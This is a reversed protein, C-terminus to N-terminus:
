GEQTLAQLLRQVPAYGPVVSKGNMDYVAPTGQVGLWQGLNYHNSVQNNCQTPQLRAGQMMSNMAMNPNGSCAVASMQQYSDSPQGSRPDNLGSRPYLAYHVTIGAANYTSMENHMKQCFGCSTDFFVLIEYKENPAKYTVFSSKLKNIVGAGVEATKKQTLNDMNNDMDYLQGAMLHSGDKTVYYIGRETVVEFMGSSHENIEAVQFSTSQQIKASIDSKSLSAYALSSSLTIGISAAIVTLKKFSKM